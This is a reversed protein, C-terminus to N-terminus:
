RSSPPASQTTPAAPQHGGCLTQLAHMAEPNASESAPRVYQAWYGTTGWNTYVESIADADGNWTAKFSQMLAPHGSCIRIIPSSELKFNSYAANHSQDVSKPTHVPDNWAKPWIFLWISHQDHIWHGRQSQPTILPFSPWSSWAAPPVFIRPSHWTTSVRLALFAAFSIVLTAFVM